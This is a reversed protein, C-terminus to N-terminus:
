KYTYKKEEADYAIHVRYLLELKRTHGSKPACMGITLIINHTLCKRWRALKIKSTDSVIDNDDNLEERAGIIISIYMM